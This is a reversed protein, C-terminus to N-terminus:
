CAGRLRVARCGRLMVVDQNGADGKAPSEKIPAEM